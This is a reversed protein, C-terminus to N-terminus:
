FRRKKNEPLDITKSCMIKILKTLLGLVDNFKLLKVCWKMNCISCLVISLHCCVDSSLSNNVVPWLM